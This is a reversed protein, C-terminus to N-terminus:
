EQVDDDTSVHESSNQNDRMNSNDLHSEEHEIEKITQKAILTEVDEMNAVNIEPVYKGIIKKSYRLGASWTPAIPSEEKAVKDIEDLIKDKNRWLTLAQVLERKSIKMQTKEECYPKITEFIFNEYDESAKTVAQIIQEFVMEESMKKRKFDFILDVVVGGALPLCLLFYLLGIMTKGEAIRIVAMMLDFLVIGIRIGYAIAEKKTM